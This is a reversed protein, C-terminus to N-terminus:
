QPVEGTNYMQRLQDVSLIIVQQGKAKAIKAPGANAGCVLFALNKTVSHVVDLGYTQAEKALENKETPSFGTFCIQNPIKEIKPSKTTYIIAWGDKDSLAAIDEDSLNTKSRLIRAVKESTM